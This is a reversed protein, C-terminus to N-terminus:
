PGGDDEGIEEFRFFSFHDQLFAVAVFDKRQRQRSKITKDNREFVSKRPHIGDDQKSYKNPVHLRGRLGTVFLRFDFPGDDRHRVPGAAFSNEDRKEEKKKRSERNEDGGLWEGLTKQFGATM